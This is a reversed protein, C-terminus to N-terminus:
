APKPLDIMAAFEAEAAVAGIGGVALVAGAAGALLWGRFTM